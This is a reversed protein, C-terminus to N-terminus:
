YILSTGGDLTIRAGSFADSHESQVLSYTFSAIEEPEIVRKILTNSNVFNEFEQANESRKRSWIGDKVNVHGPNICNVRIGLRSLELSFYSNLIGLSKKSMTYNLPAGVNHESAISGIFIITGESSKLLLDKFIVVTNYATIFNLNFIDYNEHFSTNLGKTGKGSGLNIVLSDLGGWNNAIKEKLHLIEIKNRFDIQEFLNNKKDSNFSLKAKDLNEKSMGTICVEWNKKSFYEAISFGIGRTSGTVLIRKNIM